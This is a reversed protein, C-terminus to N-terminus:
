EGSLVGGTLSLLRKRDIKFYEEVLKMDVLNRPIAYGEDTMKNRIETKIRQAKNTGCCGLKKIDETTAFQYSLIKLTEEATLIKTM